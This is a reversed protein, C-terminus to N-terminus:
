FIKVDGKCQASTSTSQLNVTIDCTTDVTAHIEISDFLTVKGVMYTRSSLPIKGLILEEYLFPTNIMTTANIYVTAHLKKSSRAKVIGAPMPSMGAVMGHYFISTNTSQYKYGAYNPNKIGINVGLVLDLTIPILTYSLNELTTSSTTVEVARKKFIYFIFFLFVGILALIIVFIICCIIKFCKCCKRGKKKPTPPEESTSTSTNLAAGPESLALKQLPSEPKEQEQM